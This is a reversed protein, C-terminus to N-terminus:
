IGKYGFGPYVGGTCARRDGSTHVTSSSSFPIGTAPNGFFVLGVAIAGIILGAAIILITEKKTTSDNM